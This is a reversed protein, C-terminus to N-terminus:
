INNKEKVKQIIKLLLDKPLAKALPLQIAGKSTKYNVLDDVLDMIVTPGPYIGIHNKYAAFHILNKQQCFTPMAYKFEEKANPFSAKLLEYLEELKDKTELPFNEFYTTFLHM